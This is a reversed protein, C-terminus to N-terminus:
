QAVSAAASSNLWRLEAVTIIAAAAVAFIKTSTTPNSLGRLRDVDRNKKVARHPDSFTELQQM